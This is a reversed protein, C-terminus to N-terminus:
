WSYLVLLSFIDFLSIESKSVKIEGNIKQKVASSFQSIFHLVIFKGTQKNAVHFFVKPLANGLPNLIAALHTRRNFCPFIIPRKKTECLFLSYLSYAVCYFNKVFKRRFFPAISMKQKLSRKQVYNKLSRQYQLHHPFFSFPIIFTLIKQKLFSQIM